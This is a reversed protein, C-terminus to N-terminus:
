RRSVPTSGCRDAGQTTEGPYKTHPNKALPQGDLLSEGQGFLNALIVPPGGVLAIACIGVWRIWCTAM